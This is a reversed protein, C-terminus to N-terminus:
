QLQNINMTDLIIVKFKLAGVTPKAYPIGKFAYFERNELLTFENSGKLEGNETNVTVYRTRDSLTTTIFALVTIAVFFTQSLM